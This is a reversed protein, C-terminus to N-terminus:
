HEELCVCDVHGAETRNFAHSSISNILGLALTPSSASTSKHTPKLYECIGNNKLNEICM